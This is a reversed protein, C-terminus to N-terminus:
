RRTDDGNRKEKRSLLDAVRAQMLQPDTPRLLFIDAGQQLAGARIEDQSLSASALMIPVDRLAPDARLKALLDLGSEGPMHIDSIILDPLVARASALASSVNPVGVVEYGVPQLMSRLLERNAVTNDVVLIRAGAHVAQPPVVQASAPGQHLAPGAEAKTKLFLEVQSVFTEPTIPKGIYGDFGGALARDRDGVMAFATVAIVPIARTEPAAKLRRVVEYGDMRPLQIDCVVVDPRERRALELGVEGDSASLPEYKYARLLYVMLELNAPNDEIVLIRVPM